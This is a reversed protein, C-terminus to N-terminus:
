AFPKVHKDSDAAAKNQKRACRALRSRDWTGAEPFSVTSYLRVYRLADNPGGSLTTKGFSYITGFLALFFMLPTTARIKM